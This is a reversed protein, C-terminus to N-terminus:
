LVLNLGDTAVRRARSSIRTTPRAAHPPASSVVVVAAELGVVAEAGGVAGV